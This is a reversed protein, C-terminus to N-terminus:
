CNILNLLESESINTPVDKLILSFNNEPINPDVIKAEAGFEVNNFEKLFLKSEDKNLFKLVVINKNTKNTNILKLKKIKQTFFLWLNM